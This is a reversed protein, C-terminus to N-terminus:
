FEQVTATPSDDLVTTSGDPCHGCINSIHCNPDGLVIKGNSGATFGAVFNSTGPLFTEPKGDGDVDALVFGKRQVGLEGADSVWRANPNAALDLNWDIELPEHKSGDTRQFAMKINVAIPSLFGGGTEDTKTIVMQTIPQEGDLTVRIDFLGCDTKVPEVSELFLAKMQLRTTAVGQRNFPADDLRQLVTDTKGLIGEPSTTVPVGQFAVLGSFGKSGSCLFDAPLPDQSFDVYTSGDGPTTFLDIGGYVVSDAAAPLTLLTVTLLM